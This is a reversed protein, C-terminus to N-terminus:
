PDSPSSGSADLQTTGDLRDKEVTSIAQAVMCQRYKPPNETTDWAEYPIGGLVIIDPMRRTNPIYCPFMPKKLDVDWIMVYLWPKRPNVDRENKKTVNNVHVGDPSVGVMRRGTIDPLANGGEGQKGGSSM